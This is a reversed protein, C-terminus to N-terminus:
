LIEKIIVEDERIYCLYGNVSSSTIEQVAKKYGLVQKVHHESPTQSSKYDIINYGGDARKVLLDMYRLEGKVLMGKEKFREGKTLELFQENELLM